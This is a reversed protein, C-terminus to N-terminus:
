ELPHAAHESLKTVQCLRAHSTLADAFTRWDAIREPPAACARALFRAEVTTGKQLEKLAPGKQVGVWPKTASCGPSLYPYPCLYAKGRGGFRVPLNGADPRASKGFDLEVYRDCVERLSTSMGKHRQDVSLALLAAGFAGGEDWKVRVVETDFVDPLIQRWAASNAGGGTLRFQAPKGLKRSIKEFGMELQLGRIGGDGV